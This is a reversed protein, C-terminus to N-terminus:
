FPTHDLPRARMPQYQLPTEVLWSGDMTDQEDEEEPHCPRQQMPPRPPSSHTSPIHTPHHLPHLMSLRPDNQHLGNQPQFRMAEVSSMM